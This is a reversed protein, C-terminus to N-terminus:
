EVDFLLRRTSNAELLNEQIMQLWLRRALEELPVTRKVSLLATVATIEGASEWLLRGSNADWVQLWLRLTTIRNRVLKLGAFDYRDTVTQDFEAVGPLLVYHSNLRAGIASMRKRDLIGSAIFGSLLQAYDSGLGKDGENIISVTESTPIVRIPPQAESIARVLAHSFFPAFGQLAPPSVVGLIAVPTSHNGRLEFSQTRPTSTTYIDSMYAPSCGAVLLACIGICSCHSLM